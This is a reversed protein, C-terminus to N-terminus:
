NIFFSYKKSGCDFIRFYNLENMIQKESKNKDYGMRVLKDKRFNFRHFRKKDKVWYYNYMTDSIYVFGLKNYVDGDSYDNYSYSHIKNPKFNKIFYKLMRSASGVINTNIKSCFRLLEWENNQHKNGLSKRLKGFTSISVLVNNYYLGIKISSNVYGQIHNNELFDKVVSNDYIQKIECKRAWIKLNNVKLKNSIISKIIDSKNIWHDEWIYYIKIEKNLFFEKKEKHYKKGKNEESHWYLGNYEFGIKLDPLYIDIEYKDKYNEVIEKDYISKIFSLLEKEASSTQKIIPNCHICLEENTDLRKRVMQFEIDYINNCKNCQIELRNNSIDIIYENVKKSWNKKKNLKVKSKYEDTRIYLDGYKDIQNKISKNKVIENKMPYIFGYRELNTNKVKEVVEKSKIINDVGYKEKTTSIMKQKIIESKAPVNVGYNNMLTEIAKTKISKVKIPNDVGYKELFFEKNKDLIDKNQLPYDVGFKINNSKKVKEKIFNSKSPNDVGYKELNTNSRKEKVVSSDWVCRKSCYKTYGVKVSIFRVKNGCICNPVNDLNNEYLYFKENFPIDIDIKSINLWLSINEKKIRKEGFGYYISNCM